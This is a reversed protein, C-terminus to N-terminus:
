ILYNGAFLIFYHFYGIMQTPIRGAMDHSFFQGYMFGAFNSALVEDSYNEPSFRMKDNARKLINGIKRPNPLEDNSRARRFSHIGKFINFILLSFVFLNMFKGVMTM